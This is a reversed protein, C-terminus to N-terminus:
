KVQLSSIYASLNRVRLQATGDNASGLAQFIPGWVPMDKSGHSPASSDGKITQIVQMEPFKGGNATALWTLDTPPLKMAAAAPGNGKGDSGHCSACYALYMAKGSSPPTYPVPVKKIGASTSDVPQQTTSKAASFALLIAIAAVSFLLRKASIESV